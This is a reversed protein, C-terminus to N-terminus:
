SLGSAVAFISGFLIPAPPLLPEVLMWQANTLDSPYPQRASRSSM